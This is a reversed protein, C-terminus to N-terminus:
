KDKSGTIRFSRSASDAKIEEYRNHAVNRPHISWENASDRGASEKRKGVAVHQMTIRWRPRPKKGDSQRAFEGGIIERNIFHKEPWVTLDIEIGKKVFPLLESKVNGVLRAEPIKEQLCIHVDISTKRFGDPLNNALEIVQKVTVIEDDSGGRIQPM